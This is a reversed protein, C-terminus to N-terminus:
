RIYRREQMNQIENRNNINSRVTVLTRKGSYPFALKCNEMGYEKIENSMTIYLNEYKLYIEECHFKIIKSIKYQFLKMKCYFENMFAKQSEKMWDVSGKLINAYQEKTIKVKKESYFKGVKNKRKLFFIKHKGTKEASLIFQENRQEETVSPAFYIDCIEKDKMIKDNQQSMNIKMNEKFDERQKENLIRENEEFLRIGTM